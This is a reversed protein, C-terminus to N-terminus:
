VCHVLQVLKSLTALYHVFDRPFGISLPGPPGADSHHHFVPYFIVLENKNSYFRERRRRGSLVYQPLKADRQPLAVLNSPAANAESRIFLGGQYLVM